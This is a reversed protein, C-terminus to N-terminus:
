ANLLYPIPMAPPIHISYFDGFFIHAKKLFSSTSIFWSNELVLGLCNFESNKMLRTLKGSNFAM